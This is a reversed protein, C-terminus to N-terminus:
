TNGNSYEHYCMWQCRTCLCGMVLDAGSNTDVTVVNSTGYAAALPAPNGTIVAAYTYSATGGSPTVTIQSEDNTCYVNTATATFTLANAPETVIITADATCGTIDDTVRITYTDAILDTFDITNGAQVLTGLGSLITTTYTGAYDSVTFEIAGTNDGFCYVDNLKLGAITINTVPVVTYSEQYTCGNADTVEFMYTDPALGTFLGSNSGTVNGTASAPSLIAYSLPGIGDTTTLQVDSTLAICTVAPLVSFRFGNTSRLGTCYCRNTSFYMWQCRKRYATVTGSTYTSYTNTSTYNVGGDFSYTYPATGTGATATITVIAAQTANGAGCTLGQTLAGTGALIAPETITVTTPASDCNKSDRVVVDYPGAPLGNFVNSSQFTAGNDISYQYPAIGDAATVVISGDSVGNCSVNTQTFTLTPTTKPTVIIINSEAQCGQSDTVRFQYNGDVTAIYPSGGILAYAASNYSVEYTTYSGTGGSPTLTISADVICTLDQTMNADLLLAPQVVYTTTATCGNGDKIFLDYTGAANISFTASSQYAGAIGGTGISYTVPGVSTTGTLTISIPTGTFCQPVVPDITPDADRSITKNIRVSCGNVDEIVIDWNTRITDDLNLVNSSGFDGPVPIFGLAGAAYKYPGTGGTTTLTIQAGSNCNANVEATITSALPQVPQRIQFQLTTSCLTTGDFERVFLTYNGAPLGTITGNAPGPNFGTLHGNIAPIVATNTLNDRVEYYLDTTSLDYQDVTFTIEGNDAGFCTVNTAVLPDIIIPSILPTTIELYSPCGNVDIVEFVYTTGQDLGSFTYSTASTTVATAPQGYIAYTYDPIGGSVNLEVDVGTLCSASAIASTLNLYPIPEIRLRNSRYECGNADVITIYYDGFNLGGFNWVPTSASAIETYTDIQTFSNDYLTYVYPATGGSAINIDFSGPTNPSCQIGNTVINPFIPAPDIINITGTAECGKIDRVVFNYSGASLGGFVNSAVFTTGGDLSYTFPAEGTLATLTISGDTDGNCTPNVHTESATVPTIADVTVVNTEKTCGNADTIEFQYTDATAASYTFTAGAFATSGGYAGAGIKVRYSYPANGGSTTVDITAATPVSCTLDKTLIANTDLPAYVITPTPSIATCGNNDRITVFYTGPANVIFTPSAQYSAGGNISYTLPALGTGTATFTFGTSVTCQNSAM